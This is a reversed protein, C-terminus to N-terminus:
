RQQAYWAAIQARSGFGLTNLIQQVHYEATRESVVLMVAIERNSRGDAVLRAVERQRPTLSRLPDVARTEVSPEAETSLACTRAEELTMKTGEAKLRDAAPGLSKRAREVWSELLARWTAPLQSRNVDGFAQAAGALRVATAPRGALASLGALWTLQLHIMWQDGIDLSATLAAQMSARAGEFDGLDGLVAGLLTETSAQM